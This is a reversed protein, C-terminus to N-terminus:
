KVAATHGSGCSVQTWLAGSAITQVPSSKSVNTNDGLQGYANYGWTWLTGDTKIAATHYRGGSAQKWNTGGAITQVPSSKDTVTNDGLQGYANYGWSWLTGSPEPTTIMGNQDITTKVAGGTSFVLNGSNESLIWNPTVLNAAWEPRLNAVMTTSEVIVPPEGTVTNIIVQEAEVTSTDDTMIIGLTGDLIIAMKTKRIIQNSSHAM